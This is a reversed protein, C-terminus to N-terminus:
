RQKPRASLNAKSKAGQEKSRVEWEGSEATDEGEAIGAAIPNAAKITPFLAKAKWPRGIGSKGPV